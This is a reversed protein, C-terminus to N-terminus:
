PSGISRSAVLRLGAKLMEVSSSWHLIFFLSHRLHEFGPCRADSHRLWALLFFLFGRCGLFPVLTGHCGLGFILSILISDSSYLDKHFSSHGWYSTTQPVVVFSFGDLYSVKVHYQFTCFGQVMVFVVVVFVVV